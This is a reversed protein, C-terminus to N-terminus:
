QKLKHKSNQFFVLKYGDPDRLTFERNGWPWEKPKNVPKIGLAIVGKYFEDVDDVKITTYIGAGEHGPATEKAFSPDAGVAQAVFRISFWNLYITLTNDDRNGPRFGLAEYFAATADLDKVYCVLGSISKMDM